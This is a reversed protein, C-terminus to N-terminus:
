KVIEFEPRGTSGPAIEYVEFVIVPNGNENIYFNSEESITTFVSFEQFYIEPTKDIESQIINNAIQIYDPGLLDELSLEKGTEMDFNYYQYVASSALWDEYMELVFSLHEENNTKVNYSVNVHIDKAIFEEETGGTAIYAEKYELIHQEAQKTYSEVTEDIVANIDTIRQVEEEQITVQEQEINPEVELVEELELEVDVKEDVEDIVEIYPQEIEVQFDDFEETKSEITLLRIIPALLPVKELNAAVVPVTNLTTVFAILLAAVAVLGKRVGYPIIKNQEKKCKCITSEVLSQDVNIKEQLEKYHDKLM